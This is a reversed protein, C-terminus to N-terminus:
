SRAYKRAFPTWTLMSPCTWPTVERAAAVDTACRLSERGVVNAVSSPASELALRAMCQPLDRM